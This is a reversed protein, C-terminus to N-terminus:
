EAFASPASAMASQIMPLPILHPPCSRLLNTGTASNNGISLRTKEAPNPNAEIEKTVRRSPTKRNHYTLTNQTRRTAAEIAKKGLLGQSIFHFLEIEPM